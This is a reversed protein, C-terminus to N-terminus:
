RGTIKYAYRWDRGFGTRHNMRDHPNACLAVMDDTGRNADEHIQALLQQAKQYWATASQIDKQEEYNLQFCKAVWVDDYGPAPFEDNDNQYWPLAKKYLVEVWALLPNYNAPYWPATSIDVIQFLARLKNNPIYSVQNGDIDSLVVDYQGIANRTFASVDFYTGSTTKSTADMTITESFSAAGEIPGTLNVVVPTSEVAKVSVILQSQNKLTTQLPQMGKLRWDRWEDPWSFENYRPRMQSLKIAIHSYAERMARIQGVYEPLSVTQNANVKFYQEELCGAMDSMQYLEKAASNAFRLLVARQGSDAPNLGLKYGLQQLVYQLAM